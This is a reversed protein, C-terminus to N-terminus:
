DYRQRGSVIHRGDIRRGVGDFAATQKGVPWVYSIDKTAGGGIDIADETACLRRVKGNLQRDFELHGDVDFRGLREAKSHRLRNQQARVLHDFSLATLADGAVLAPHAVPHCQWCSVDLSRVGNARMNGLTMPPAAQSRPRTGMGTLVGHGSEAFAAATASM